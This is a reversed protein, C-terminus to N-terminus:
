LRLLCLESMRWPYYETLVIDLPIPAFHTQALKSLFSFIDYVIALIKRFSPVGFSTYSMQFALYRAAQKKSVKPTFFDM